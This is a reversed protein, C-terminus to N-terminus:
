RKVDCRQVIIALYGELVDLMKDIINEKKM